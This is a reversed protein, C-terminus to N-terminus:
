SVTAARASTRGLLALLGPLDVVAVTIVRDGVGYPVVLHEGHRVAGCTYVVNPVYGSRQDGEPSLLPCPLTAIVRGPEDLDLLMAGITYTRMPGVAHTLVIWGEETEIPSGCNGVQILGWPRSPDDIPTSSGWALGDDSWAVFSRERDWRSLCARRGGVPRPFLAMGKNRAAPGSLQHADFQGFDDTQLLQPCIRRGDYATYTAFYTARGGDDFRVFRADEVGNLESPGTPVLVRESIMGATPFSVRYRNDAIWRLRDIADRSAQRSLLQADLRGIAAELAPRDFTDGLSDLILQSTEGPSGLERLQAMVAARSYLVPQRVPEELREGPPDLRVHGDRGATGTRFEISSLHGEGIARASLIVRLEGAGAGSQDPHAVMSPNTLAAGEPAVDHTFYAGILRQRNSSPAAQTGLRHAVTEFHQQFVADLWPRDAFRSELDILAAAVEQDDLALVRNIVATARSHDGPMEEGPMFLTAYVRAPDPCLLLDTTTVLEAVAPQVSV